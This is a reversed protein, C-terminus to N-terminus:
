KKVFGKPCKAGTKVYRTSKGKVCKTSYLSKTTEGLSLTLEAIKPIIALIERLEQQEKAKRASEAAAAAVVLAQAAAESADLSTDTTTATLSSSAAGLGVSNRAKLTISYSTRGSLNSITFPSTTTGASTYSGSNLAYEYDTIAASGAFGATFTITLSKNGSSLSNLTPASPAFDPSFRIVIVGSGGDGGNSASAGSSSAGGGGNGRNTTGASGVSNASTTGGNGGVGYTISAGTISVGTGLGGARTGSNSQGAGLSGGGGGGAAGGRGGGSNSTAASGGTGDNTSTTCYAEYVTTRSACGGLGGNATLLNSGGLSLISNGGNSGVNLPSNTRRETLTAGPQVGGSGGAGVSISYISSETVSFTSNSNVQGAGGGGAGRTDFTSGGGAGGGVLLIQVTILGQPATWTVSGSKFTVVCDGEVLRVAEVNTADSVTQNCVAPTPHTGTATVTAAFSSEIFTLQSLFVVFILALKRLKHNQACYPM